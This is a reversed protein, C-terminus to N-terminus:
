PPTNCIISHAIDQTHGGEQAQSAPGMRVHEHAFTFTLDSLAVYTLFAIWKGSPLGTGAQAWTKTECRWWTWITRYGSSWRTAETRTTLEFVPARQPHHLRGYVANLFVDSSLFNSRTLRSSQCKQGTCTQAYFVGPFLCAKMWPSLRIFQTKRPITGHPNRPWLAGIALRQGKLQQCLFHVTNRKRISRKLQYVRTLSVLRKLLM